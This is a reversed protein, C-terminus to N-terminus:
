TPPDFSASVRKRFYTATTFGGGRHRPRARREARSEEDNEDCDPRTERQATEDALGKEGVRDRYRLAPRQERLHAGSM